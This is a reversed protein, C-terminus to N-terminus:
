QDSSSSNESAEEQPVPGRKGHREGFDDMKPGGGFGGMVPGGFGGMGGKFMRGGKGGCATQVADMASQQSPQVQQMANQMATRFDDNAKKVADKRQVDDAITAAATLATKRAQLAEKQAQQLTDFVSLQAQDRSAMAQVCAQTPTFAPRSAADGSASSSAQTLLPIAIGLSSAGVILGLLLKKM